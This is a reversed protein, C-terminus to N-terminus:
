EEDSTKEKATKVPRLHGAEVLLDEAWTELDAVFTSGPLHGHVAHNGVVEYTKEAMSQITRFALSTSASPSSTAAMAAARKGPEM